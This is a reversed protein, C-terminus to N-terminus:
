RNKELHRITKTLADRMRRAVEVDEVGFFLKTHAQDGSLTVVAFPYDRYETPPYTDRTVEDTAEVHVTVSGGHPYDTGFYASVCDEYPTTAPADTFTHVTPM